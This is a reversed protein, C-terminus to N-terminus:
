SYGEDDASSVNDRNQKRAQSLLDMTGKSLRNHYSMSSHDKAKIIQKGKPNILNLRMLASM